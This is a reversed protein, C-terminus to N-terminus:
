RTMITARQNSNAPAKPQHAAPLRVTFMAGGRPPNTFTIQGAHAEVIRKCICLGLGLGTEKTSVFPEFIREGLDTRLGCGTDAVEITVTARRELAGETPDFPNAIPGAEELERVQVTITGGRSTADLANLLLNIMVQRIQGSDVEAICALESFPTEITVGQQDARSAVLNIAQAVMEKIKGRHKEPKPPRAFDIFSQTLNEVRAIGEQLVVVDRGM